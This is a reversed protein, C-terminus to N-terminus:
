ETRRQENEFIRQGQPRERKQIESAPRGATSGASVGVGTWLGTVAYTVWGLVVAGVVIVAAWVLYNPASRIPFIPETDARPTDATTVTEGTSETSLAAASPPFTQDLDAEPLPEPLEGVRIAVVTVNDKGGAALAAGVLARATTAPDSSSAFIAAIGADSVMKSLGDSCVLVWDGSAIAFPTFDVLVSPALGVARMIMNRFMPNLRREDDVGISNAVSHDVTIPILEQMGGSWHYVRSDGAHLALAAGPAAPDFAVGVFTTGTGSKGRERSRDFIWESVDNLMRDIWAAKAGLSLPRGPSLASFCRELGERVAGSAVEGDEAGGMGDAVCFFGHEPFVAYTDENNKRKKGVDTLAAHAIHGFPKM